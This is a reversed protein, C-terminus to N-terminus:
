SNVDIQNGLYPHKIYEMSSTTKRNRPLTQHDGTKQKKFKLQETDNLDNVRKRKLEEQKLQSSALSEQFHQNQKTLQESLKSADQTRPIAVQLEILKLSM